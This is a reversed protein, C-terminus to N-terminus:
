EHSHCGCNGTCGACKGSCSGSDPCGICKQGSKKAKVIYSVISGMLLAVAILVLYDTM